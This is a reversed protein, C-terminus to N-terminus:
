RYRKLVEPFNTAKIDPSLIKVGWDCHSPYMTFPL